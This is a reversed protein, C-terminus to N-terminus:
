KIILVWKGICKDVLNIKCLLENKKVCFYCLIFCRIIYLIYFINYIIIINKIWEFEKKFLIVIINYNINKFDLYKIYVVIVM